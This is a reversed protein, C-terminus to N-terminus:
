NVPLGATASATANLAGVAGGRRRGTRLWDTVILLAAIAEARERGEERSGVSTTSSAIATEKMAVGLGVYHKM